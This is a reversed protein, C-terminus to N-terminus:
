LAEGLGHLKELDAVGLEGSVCERRDAREVMARVVQGAQERTEDAAFALQRLHLREKVMRVRSDDGQSPRSACALGSQRQLDGPPL